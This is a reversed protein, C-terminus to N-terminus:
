RRFSRLHCVRGCELRVTMDLHFSRSRRTGKDHARARKLAFPHTGPPPPSHPATLASAARRPAARAHKAAARPHARSRAGNQRPLRGGSPYAAFFADTLRSNPSPVTRPSSLPLSAPLTHTHSPATPLVM